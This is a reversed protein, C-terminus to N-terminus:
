KGKKFLQCVHCGTIYARLQEASNPCYFRQSIMQYYKTIGVHGGMVSSLYMELLVHVKSTPICLVMDMESVNNETIKFLLGDLIMYNHANVELRHAVAKNILARNQLLHLYVDKFHPSTLYAAKLDKLTLPLKTDRLIKQNIQALIKDVDGQKPLSKYWQKKVDVVQDLPEPKYFDSEEPIKIEPDLIEEGEGTDIGM